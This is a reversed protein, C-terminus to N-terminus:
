LTTVYFHSEPFYFLLLAMKYFELSDLKPAKTHCEGFSPGSSDYRLRWARM